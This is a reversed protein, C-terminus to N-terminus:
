EAWGERFARGSAGRRRGFRRRQGCCGPMAYREESLSGGVYARLVEEFGGSMWPVVAIGYSSLMGALPRSIAGCLLTDVGLSQLRRARQPPLVATLDEHTRGVERGEAVDVVVLRRAADFVPSIRSGWVPIGIRM